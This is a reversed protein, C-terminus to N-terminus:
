RRRPPRRAGRGARAAARAAHAAARDDGARPGGPAAAGGLDAGAARPLSALLARQADTVRQGDDHGTAHAHLITRERAGAPPLVLGLARAPTSCYEDALWLALEVLEPSVTDDLVRLPAVLAHPSEAALGTVVGRLRQRGFPVDLLSGVDAGTRACTTSRGACRM